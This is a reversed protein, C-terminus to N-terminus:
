CLLSTYLSGNHESSDDGAIARDFFKAGGAALRHEDLRCEVSHPLPSIFRITKTSLGGLNIGLDGDVECKSASLGVGKDDQIGM